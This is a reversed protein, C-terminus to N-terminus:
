FDDEEDLPKEFYYGARHEKNVVLIQVDKGWCEVYMEDFDGYGFSLGQEALAYKYWDLEM